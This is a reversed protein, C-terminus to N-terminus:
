SSISKISETVMNHKHNPTFFYFHAMQYIMIIILLIVVIQEETDMNSKLKAQLLWRRCKPM